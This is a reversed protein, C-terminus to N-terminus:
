STTCFTVKAESASSKVSKSEVKLSSEELEDIYLFQRIIQPFKQPVQKSLPVVCLRLPVESKCTRIANSAM